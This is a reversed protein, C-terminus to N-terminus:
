RCAYGLRKLEACLDDANTVPAANRLADDYARQADRVDRRKELNELKEANRKEELAKLELAKTQIESAIRSAKELAQDAEFKAQAAAREAKRVKYSSIASDVWGSIILLAIIGGAIYIGWKQPKTLKAWVGNIHEVIKM